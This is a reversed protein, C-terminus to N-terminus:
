CDALPHYHWTVAASEMYDLLISNISVYILEQVTSSLCSKQLSSSVARPLNRQVGENM